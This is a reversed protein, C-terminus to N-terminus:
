SVKEADVLKKCGDCRYQNKGDLMEIELYAASLSQEVSSSGAVTM